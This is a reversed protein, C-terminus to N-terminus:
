RNKLMWFYSRRKEVSDCTVQYNYIYVIKTFLGTFNWILIRFLQQLFPSFKLPGSKAAGQLGLGHRLRENPDVRTVLM